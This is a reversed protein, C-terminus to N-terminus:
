FASTDVCQSVQITSTDNDISVLDEGQADSDVQRRRGIRTGVSVAGDLTRQLVSPVKM